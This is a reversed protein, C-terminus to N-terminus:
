YINKNDNEIEMVQDFLVLTGDSTRLVRSHIVANSAAGSKISVFFPQDVTNRSIYRVLYSGEPSSALTEMATYNGM